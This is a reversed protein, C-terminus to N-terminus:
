KGQAVRTLHLKTVKWTGEGGEGGNPTSRGTHEFDLPLSASSFRDTLCGVALVAGQASLSATVDAKLGAGDYNGGYIDGVTMNVRTLDGTGIWVFYSMGNRAARM